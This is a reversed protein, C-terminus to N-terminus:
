SVERCIPYGSRKLGYLGEVAVEIEEAVADVADVEAEVEVELSGFPVVRSDSSSTINGSFKCESSSEPSYLRRSSKARRGDLKRQKFYVLGTRASASKGSIGEINCSSCTLRPNGILCTINGSWKLVSLADRVCRMSKEVKDGANGFVNVCKVIVAFKGSVFACTCAKGCDSVCRQM